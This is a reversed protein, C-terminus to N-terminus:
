LWSLPQSQLKLTDLTKVNGVDGHLSETVYIHTKKEYTDIQIADRGRDYTYQRRDTFGGVVITAIYRTATPERAIAMKLVRVGEATTWNSMGDLVPSDHVSWGHNGRILSGPVVGMDVSVTNGERTIVPHEYRQKVLPEVAAVGEKSAIKDRWCIGSFQVLHKRLEGGAPISTGGDFPYGSKLTALICPDVFSADQPVYEKMYFPWFAHTIEQTFAEARVAAMDEPKPPPAPAASAAPGADDSGPKKYSYECATAVSCGFLVALRPNLAM